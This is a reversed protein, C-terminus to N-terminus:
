ASTSFRSAFHLSETLRTISSLIWSQSDADKQFGDLGIQQLVAESLPEARLTSVEHRKHSALILAKLAVPNFLDLQEDLDKLILQSFFANHNPAVLRVPLVGKVGFRGAIASEDSRASVVSALAPTKELLHKWFSAEGAPISTTLLPTQIGLETQVREFAAALDELVRPQTALRAFDEPSVYVRGITKESVGQDKLIRITQDTIQNLSMQAPRSLNSSATVTPRVESTGLVYAEARESGLIFPVVGLRVTLLRPQLLEGSTMTEFRRPQFVFAESNSQRLESRLSEDGGTTPINSTRIEPSRSSNASLAQSAGWLEYSVLLVLGILVTYASGRGQALGEMFWYWFFALYAPAAIHFEGWMVWRVAWSQLPTLPLNMTKKHLPYLILVMGLAMIGLTIGWLPTHDLIKLLMNRLESRLQISHAKGSWIRVSPQHSSQAAAQALMRILHGPPFLTNHSSTVQPRVASARNLSGSASKQIPNLRLESRTVAFASEEADNPIIRIVQAQGDAAAQFHVRFAKGVAALQSQLDPWQTKLDNWDVEKLEEKWRSTFAKLFDQINQLRALILATFVPADYVSALISDVDAAGIGEQALLKAIEQHYYIESPDLERFQAGAIKDFFDHIRQEQERRMLIRRWERIAGAALGLVLLGGCIWIGINQINQIATELNRLESRLSTQGNGVAGAKPDSPPPAVKLGPILSALTRYGFPIVTHSTLPVFQVVKQDADFPLKFNSPDFFVTLQGSSESEALVLVPISKPPMKAEGTRQIEVGSSGLTVEGQLSRYALRGATDNFFGTWGDGEAAAQEASRPAPILHRSLVEHRPKIFPTLGEALRSAANEWDSFEIVIPEDQVGAQLNAAAPEVTPAIKHLIIQTSTSEISVGGLLGYHAWSNLETAAKDLGILFPDDKSALPIKTLYIRQGLYTIYIERRHRGDEKTKRSKVENEDSDAADFNALPILIYHRIIQRMLPIDNPLKALPERLKEDGSAKLLFKDLHQFSGLVRVLMVEIQPALLNSARDKEMALLEKFGGSITKAMLPVEKDLTEIIWLADQHKTASETMANIQILMEHLASEVKLLAEWPDEDPSSITHAAGSSVTTSVLAHHKNKPSQKAIPALLKFYEALEISYQFLIETREKNEPSHFDAALAASGTLPNIKEQVRATTQPILRNLEQIAQTMFAPDTLWNALIPNMVARARVESRTNPKPSQAAHRDSIEMAPKTVARKARDQGESPSPAGLIDPENARLSRLLADAIDQDRMQYIAMLVFADGVTKQEIWGNLRPVHRLLYYYVMQSRLFIIAAALNENEFNELHVGVAGLESHIYGWLEARIKENVAAGQQDHGDLYAQFTEPTFDGDLLNNFLNGHRYYPAILREGKSLATELNLYVGEEHAQAALVATRLESRFDKSPLIIRLAGGGRNVTSRALPQTPMKTTKTFVPANSALEVRIPGSNKRPNPPTPAPLESPYNRMEAVVTWVRSGNKLLDNQFAEPTLFTALGPIETEAQAAFKGSSDVFGINGKQDRLIHTIPSPGTYHVNKILPDTSVLETRDTTMRFAAEFKRDEINVKVDYALGDPVRVFRRYNDEAKHPLEAWPTFVSEPFKSNGRFWDFGPTDKIRLFIGEFDKPELARVESRVWAPSAEGASLDAPKIVSAGAEPLVVWRVNLKALDKGSYFADLISDLTQATNLEVQRLADDTSAGIHPTLIVQNPFDRALQEYTYGPYLELSKREKALDLDAFYYLDKKAALAKRLEFGDVLAARSTNIIAIPGKRKSLLKLDEANLYIGTKGPLHLSIIDATHLIESKEAPNVGNSEIENLGKGNHNLASEIWRSTAWIEPSAGFVKPFGQLKPVLKQPIDGYGLLGVKLKGIRSTVDMSMPNFFPQFVNGLGLPNGKGNKQARPIANIFQSLALDVLPKESQEALDQGTGKFDDPYLRRLYEFMFRLTLNAVSNEAGGTRVVPIGLEAAKVLDVNDTDSGARLIFSPANRESLLKLIDADQGKLKTTSRVLIGMPMENWRSQVHRQVEEMTLNVPKGREDKKLVLHFSPFQKQLAEIEDMKPADAVILVSQDYAKRIESRRFFRGLWGGIKPQAANQDVVHLAGTAQAAVPDLMALFGMFHTGLDVGNWTVAPDFPTKKNQKVEPNPDFVISPAMFMLAHIVLLAQAKLFEESQIQTSLNTQVLDLISILGALSARSEPNMIRAPPTNHHKAPYTDSYIDRLEKLIESARIEHDSGSASTAVARFKLAGGGNAAGPASAEPKAIQNMLGLLVIRASDRIGQINETESLSNIISPIREALVGAREEVSGPGSAIQRAAAILLSLLAPELSELPYGAEKLKAPSFGNELLELTRASNAALIKRESEIPQFPTMDTLNVLHLVGELYKNLHEATQAQDLGTQIQPPAVQVRMPITRLESRAFDDPVDREVDIPRPRRHTKSARAQRAQTVDRRNRWSDSRHRQPKGFVEAATGAFDDSIGSEEQNRVEARTLRDGFHVNSGVLSGSTVTIRGDSIQQVQVERRPSLLDKDQGFVLGPWEREEEQRLTSREFDERLEARLFKPALAIQHEAADSLKQVLARAESRGITATLHEMESAAFVSELTSTGTISRVYSEREQWEQKKDQLGFSPTISAYGFGKELLVKSMPDAHFGGTILVAKNEGTERLIREMNKLMIANRREAGQYFSMAMQCNKKLRPEQSLFGPLEHTNLTEFEQPTLELHLLKTITRHEITEQIWRLDAKSQALHEALLRNLHEMEKRLLDAKLESSLMLHAAVNMVEPYRKFQFNWPLHSFMEAFVLTTEPDLLDSQGMPDKLLSEVEDYLDSHRFGFNSVINLNSNELDSVSQSRILGTQSKSNQIELKNRIEHKPNRIKSGPKTKSLVSGLISLFAKREHTFKKADFEKELKELKFFRVMMPWKIQSSADSLDIRFEEDALDRLETLWQGMSYQGADFNEQQKLFKRLKPSVAQADLKRRLDQLAKDSAERSRMVVKFSEANAQYAALDEIGYAEANKEELLFLEAGKVLAQKALEDNAAMTEKSHQPFFRLTEPQLKFASGELLLLKIGYQDHLHHLLSQINKQAEFNGHATLIHLITAGTGAQLQHISGLKEPIDLDFRAPIKIEIPASLAPAAHALHPDVVQASLFVTLTFLSIARRFVFQM